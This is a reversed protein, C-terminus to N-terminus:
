IIFRSAWGTFQQRDESPLGLMSIMAVIPMQKAVVSIFITQGDLALAADLDNVLEQAIDDFTPGLDLVSRKAFAKDVLSRLREHDPDDKVVMNDALDKVSQTDLPVM